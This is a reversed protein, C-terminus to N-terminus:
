SQPFPHILEYLTLLSTWFWVYLSTSSDTRVRISLMIKLELIVWRIPKAINADEDQISFVKREFRGPFLGFPIKFHLKKYTNCIIKNHSTIFM